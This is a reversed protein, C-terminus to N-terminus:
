NRYRQNADAFKWAPCGGKAVGCDTIDQQAEVTGCSAWILNIATLAFLIYTIKKTNKM